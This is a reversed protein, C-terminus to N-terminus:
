NKSGDGVTLGTGNLPSYNQISGNEDTMKVFITPDNFDIPGKSVDISTAYNPTAWCEYKCNHLATQGTSGGFCYEDFFFEAQHYHHSNEGPSGPVINKDSQGGLGGWRNNVVHLQTANRTRGRNVLWGAWSAPNSTGTGQQRKDGKNYEIYNYTCEEFSCNNNKGKINVTRTNGTGLTYMQIPYKHITDILKVQAIAEPRNDVFNLKARERKSQIPEASQPEKQLREAKM